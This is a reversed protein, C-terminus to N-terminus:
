QNLNAKSIPTFRDIRTFGAAAAAEAVSVKGHHRESSWEKTQTTL